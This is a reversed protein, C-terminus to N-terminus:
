PACVKRRIIWALLWGLPTCFFTLIKRPSERVFRTKGALISSSCYHICDKFMRLASKPYMMSLKRLCCFGEPNDLYHQWMNKTSGDELYEVQCLVEHIVFLPAIQDALLYKYALGMYKEGPFVPYPPLSQMLDTRYILKKDGLGGRAYYGSLTTTSLDPSFGKGIIQGTKLDADLRIMGSYGKDGVQEWTKKIMQVAHVSLCDDSDLCMNLETCIHQYATNHATHMGGNEQYLYQIEFPSTEQWKKVYDATADTSGDDIILWIFTQCTQRCLSQYTRLLTHIRNYTPTFITLFVM